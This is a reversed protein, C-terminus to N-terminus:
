YCVINRKPLDVKRLINFNPGPRGVNGDLLLNSAAKDSRFVRFNWLTNGGV